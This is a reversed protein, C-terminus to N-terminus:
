RVLHPVPVDLMTRLGAPAAVIGPIANVLMAATARDGHTGGEMRLHLGPDGVIRAEDFSEECGVTMVLEIEVLVENGRAGVGANRIGRVDGAAIELHETALAYQAVVPETTQEIRDLDFGCATGLLAISERLGIHGLKEAREQFEAVSLGAGIKRQFPLRRKAADLHRKCVVREIEACAASCFAPLTDMVFGPNVGTGLVSVGAESAAVDLRRALDAHELTPWLLEETSSVVNCRAGTIATLQGIVVPLFSSTCHIVVDPALAQLTSADSSVTIGCPSDGWAEGVDHGVLGPDIDIAGVLELNRKSHALRAAALGIPGLGFSVVRLPQASSQM